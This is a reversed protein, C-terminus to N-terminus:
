GSGSLRSLFGGPFPRHVPSPPPQLHWPDDPGWALPRTLPSHGRVGYSLRVPGPLRERFHVSLQGLTQGCCTPSCGPPASSAPM